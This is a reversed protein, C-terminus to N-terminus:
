LFAGKRRQLTPLFSIFVSFCVCLRYRIRSFVHVVYCQISLITRLRKVVYDPLIMDDVRQAVLNQVVLYVVCIQKRTSASRTLCTRCLNKCAGDVTGLCYVVVAVRASLTGYATLAAVGVKVDDFHVRCAVIAHVVCAVDAFLHLIRGDVALILHVDDVFDVHKADACEVCQQLRQFFRGFMRHKYKACGFHM